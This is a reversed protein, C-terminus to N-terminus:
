GRVGGLIQVGRTTGGVVDVGHVADHQLLVIEAERRDGRVSPAELHGGGLSILGAEAGAGVALTLDGAQLGHEGEDSAEDERLARGLHPHLDLGRARGVQVAILWRWFLGIELPSM